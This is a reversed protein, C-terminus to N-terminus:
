ETLLIGLKNLAEKAREFAAEDPCLVTHLHLGGTLYSLPQAESCRIIFEDVDNRTSLQLLGILQGYVPHEVIVDIVKCGADVIAYLESLMGEADHACAIQHSIGKDTMQLKSQLIYGKPTAILNSGCARLIAVDGVIVQRSVNLKNALIKASVPSDAHSLIKLIENRRMEANM